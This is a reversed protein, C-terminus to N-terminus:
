KVATEVNESETVATEESEAKQEASENRSKRGNFYIKSMYRRLTIICM